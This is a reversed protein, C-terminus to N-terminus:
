LLDFLSAQKPEGQETKSLPAPVPATLTTPTTSVPTVGPTKTSPPDTPRIVPVVTKGGKKPSNSRTPVATETTLSPTAPPEKPKQSNIELQLEGLMRTLPEPLHGLDAERLLKIPRTATEGKVIVILPRGKPHGDQPLLQLAITLKARDYPSLLPNLLEDEIEPDTEEEPAKEGTQSPEALGARFESLDEGAKSKQSM